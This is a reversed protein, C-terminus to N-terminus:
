GHEDGSGIGMNEVMKRRRAEEDKKECQLLFKVLEEKVEANKKSKDFIMKVSEQLEKWDAHSMPMRRKAEEMLQKIKGDTWAKQQETM